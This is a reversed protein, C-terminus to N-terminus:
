CLTRGRTPNTEGALIGRTLAHVHQSTAPSNWRGQDQPLQRLQCPYDGPPWTRIEHSDLPHACSALLIVLFGLTPFVVAWLIRFLRQSLLQYQAAPKAELEESCLLCDNKPQGTGNREPMLRSSPMNDVALVEAVPM